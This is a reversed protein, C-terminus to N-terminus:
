AQLTKVEDSVKLQKWVLIALAAGILPASLYIWVHEWHGTVIAPALSRIPNM